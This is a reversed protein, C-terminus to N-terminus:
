FTIDRITGGRGDVKDRGDDPKGAGVIGAKVLIGPVCFRGMEGSAALFGNPYLMPKGGAERCEPGRASMPFYLAATEFGCDKCPLGSILVPFGHYIGLSPDGKSMSAISPDARFLKGAFDLLQVDNITDGPMAGPGAGVLASYPYSTGPEVVWRAATKRMVIQGHSYAIGGQEYRIVLRCGKQEAGIFREFPAPEIVVDTAQFPGGVDSMPLGHPGAVAVAEPPLETLHGFTVLGSSACSANAQGIQDTTCAGLALAAATAM